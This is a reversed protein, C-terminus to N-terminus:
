SAHPALWRRLAEGLRHFSFLTIALAFFPALADRLNGGAAAVGLQAGWSAEVAGLGVFAMAAEVGLLVGVSGISMSVLADAMSPLLHRFFLRAPGVGLAHAAASVDSSRFRVALLRVLRVTEPIRVIALTAAYVWLPTDPTIARLLAVLVITPFGGIMELSRTVLRDGPRGVRAAILGLPIGALLSIAVAPLVLLLFSRAGGALAGWGADPVHGSTLALVILAALPAALALDWPNNGIRVLLRKETHSSM